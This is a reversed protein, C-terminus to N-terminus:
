SLLEYLSKILKKIRKDNSKIFDNDSGALTFWDNLLSKAKDLEPMSEEGSMRKSLEDVQYALRQEKYTDPTASGTLYEAAILINGAKECYDDNSKDFDNLRKTLLKAHKKDALPKLKDWKEQAKEKDLKGLELDQCINAFKQTHKIVDITESNALSAVKQESTTILKDARNKLGNNDVRMARWDDKFKEITSNIARAEKESEISKEVEIILTKAQEMLEKNEQTEIDRQEKIRNFVADNTKRFVRWLKREQSQHVVGAKKWEQQLAKAQEIAEGLNEHEVLQQAQEILKQKRGEAAKYSEKLHADIRATGSRIKAACKGRNKPPIKDLNRLQKVAERVMRALDRDSTEELNVEHLAQINAEVQELENGWIESRKEFFEKAPTFLAEQVARFQSYQEQNRVGYRDGELKEHDEMDKWQKNSEKMKKLLADPHTGTGILAKLEEILRIRIKDNSWTQWQRLEKLESWVNDFAFKNEKILPHLGAMKKNHAIKNIAIKADALQGDKVLKSAKEIGSVADKAAQDRLIASSEIKEALKLMASDFRNKLTNFAPNSKAKKAQTDWLKRFDTIQNPQNLKHKLAADLKDVVALLSEPLDQEQSQADRLVKLTSLFEEFENAQDTTAHTMEFGSFKSIQTQLQEWTADKADALSTKLEEIKSAIRQQRQQNLFEERLDPDYTLSATRLAGHFRQTFKDLSNDKALTQWKNNIKEVDSKSSTNPNHILKEMQECLELAKQDIIESIDGDDDLKSQIIKFITKDKNKLLKALRKLTAPKTIKTVIIQRLEKDKESILLEALLGQQTIKKICYSRVDRNTSNTAAVEITKPDSISKIIGTQQSVSTKTFWDQLIKYATAKVSKNTDNEAIKAILSYDTLRRLAASRVKESEDNQSINALQSVLEETSDSSVAIVRIDADKHKWKPKNFWNVISM